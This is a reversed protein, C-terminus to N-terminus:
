PISQRYGVRVDHVNKPHHVAHFPHMLVPHRCHVCSAKPRRTASLTLHGCQACRVFYFGGLLGLVGLYIAASAGLALVAILIVTLVEYVSM